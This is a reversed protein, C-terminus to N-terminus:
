QSNAHGQDAALRYLRVAESYNQPVGLGGAYSIALNYQGRAYGQEASLRFWRAAEQYNRPIGQGVTYKYGLDAQSRADGQSARYYVSITPLNAAIGLVLVAGLLSLFFKGTLSWSAVGRGAIVLAATPVGTAKGCRSCFAAGDTMQLGCDTCFMTFGIQSYRTMIDDLILHRMAGGVPWVALPLTIAPLFYMRLTQLAAISTLQPVLKFVLALAAAIVIVLLYFRWSFVWWLRAADLWTTHRDYKRRLLRAAFLPSVYTTVAGVFMMAVWRVYHGQQSMEPFKM